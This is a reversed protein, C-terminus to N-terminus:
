RSPASNRTERNNVAMLDMVESRRNGVKQAKAM